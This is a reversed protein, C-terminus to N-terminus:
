FLTLDTRLRVVERKLDLCERGQRENVKRCTALQQAYDDEMRRAAAEIRYAYRLIKAGVWELFSADTHGESKMEAVIDSISERNGEKTEYEKELWGSMTLVSHKNDKYWKRFACLADETNPYREINKM